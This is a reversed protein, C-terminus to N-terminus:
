LVVRQYYRRVEHFKQRMWLLTHIVQDSTDEKWGQSHHLSSMVHVTQNLSGEERSNFFQSPSNNHLNSRSNRIFGILEFQIGKLSREFVRVVKYLKIPEWM